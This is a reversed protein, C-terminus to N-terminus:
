RNTWDTTSFLIIFSLMMSTNRHRNLPHTHCAFVESSMDARKAVEDDGEIEDNDKKVRLPGRDLIMTRPFQAM